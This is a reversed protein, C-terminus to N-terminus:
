LYELPHELRAPAESGIQREVCRDLHNPLYRYLGALYLFPSLMAPREVTDHLICPRECREHPIQPKSQISQSRLSPTGPQRHHLLYGQFQNKSNQDIETKTYMGVTSYIVSAVKGVKM